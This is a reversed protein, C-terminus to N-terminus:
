FARYSIGDFILCQNRNHGPHYSCHVWGSKADDPRYFELILQDFVLNDRIWQALIRNALTPIEFDAAQGTIHQSTSKSGVLRNLEPARFGSSPSFPVGFNQRVPELINEALQVLYAVAQGDPRNIIGHRLAIASRTLEGLTFYESIRDNHITM